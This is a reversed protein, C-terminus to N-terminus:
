RLRGLLLEAGFPYLLTVMMDLCDPIFGLFCVFGFVFLCIRFEKFNLIVIEDQISLRSKIRDPQLPFGLVSSIIM